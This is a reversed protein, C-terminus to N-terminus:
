WPRLGTSRELGQIVEKTVYEALTKREAKARATARALVRESLEITVDAVKLQVVVQIKQLAMEANAIIHGGTIRELHSRQEDTFYLGRGSTHSVCTRLRDSLVKEVSQKVLKAQAEYQVHTSEPISIRVNVRTEKAGPQSPADVIVQPATPQTTATAMKPGGNGNTLTACFTSLDIPNADPGVITIPVGSKRLVVVSPLLSRDHGDWFVVAADAWHADLHPRTPQWKLPEVDLTHDGKRTLLGHGVGMQSAIYFHAPALSTLHVLVHGYDLYQYSALVLVRPSQSTPAVLQDSM